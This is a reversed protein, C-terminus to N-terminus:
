YNELEMLFADLFSPTFIAAYKEWVPEVTKKFIAREDDTLYYIEM